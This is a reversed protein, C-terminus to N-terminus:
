ESSQKEPPIETNTQNMTLIEIKQEAQQLVEQCRRALAIGKEFQQLANELSLEGQELQSVIEELETLSQEFHISKSM